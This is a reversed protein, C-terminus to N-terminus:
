AVHTDIHSTHLRHQIRSTGRHTPRRPSTGSGDLSRQALGHQWGAGMRRIEGPDPSLGFGGFLVFQGQLVKDAGAAILDKAMPEVSEGAIVVGCAVNLSDALDRAELEAWGAVGVAGGVDARGVTVGAVCGTVTTSGDDHVLAGGRM